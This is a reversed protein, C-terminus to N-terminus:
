PKVGHQMLKTTIRQNIKPALSQGWHQGALMGEQMLIPMMTITKQGLETSYFQIMGKIDAGTFYRHYIAIIEDKLPDMNEDFTAAVEAPLLNLVNDPIDPRAKKLNKTFNSMVVGAMQKGISLAGTMQLLHEIDARKEQTLEDARVPICMCCCALFILLTKRSIM